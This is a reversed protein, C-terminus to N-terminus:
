MLAGLNGDNYLQVDLPQASEGPRCYAQWPCALM